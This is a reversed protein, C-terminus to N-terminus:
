LASCGKLYRLDLGHLQGWLLKTARRQLEHESTTASENPPGQPCMIRPFCPSSFFRKPSALSAADRFFREAHMGHAGGHQYVSRFVASYNRDLVDLLGDMAEPHGWFCNDRTMGNKDENQLNGVPSCSNITRSTTRRWEPHGTGVWESAAPRDGVAFAVCGWLSEGLQAGTIGKWGTGFTPDGGDPRMRFVFDYQRKSRQRLEAARIMGRLNMTFGFHMDPYLRVWLINSRNLPKGDPGNSSTRPPREQKEVWVAAPQIDRTLNQLCESSSLNRRVVTNHQGGQKSLTQTAGETWTHVFVDCQAFHARCARVHQLVPEYTCKLHQARLAREPVYRPKQYLHGSLQIAVAADM